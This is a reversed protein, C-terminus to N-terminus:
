ELPSQQLKCLWKTIYILHTSDCDFTEIGLSVIAMPSITVRYILQGTAFTLQILDCNFQQM